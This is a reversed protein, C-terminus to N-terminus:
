SKFDPAGRRVLAEVAPLRQELQAVLQRLADAEERAARLARETDRHNAIPL